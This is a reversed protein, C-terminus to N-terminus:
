HVRAAMVHEYAHVYGEIMHDVTFRRVNVLGAERIEERHALAGRITAAAGITDAPDIYVAADGGLETMPARGTAFVPCGCSHAELVPWGFGEQLSPFILGEALSYAAELDDNSVNSLQFVRDALGNRSVYDLMEPGLAEGVFLLRTLPNPLLKQLKDFIELLVLRNKYWAGGGVHLFYPTRGDFGLKDLVALAEERPKPAYPYNLSLYVVTSSEPSRGTVRLMDVESIASDCVVYQAVKLGAIILGQLKKGTSSVTNQPVEGLASKIALVDHCTAVNPTGQLYKAYMANSHDCLHVVDFNTKVRKLTFPFLLFKDVYGLWKSLGSSLKALVATYAKPQLLTVQHGRAKLEREMLSAFRLMSEQRDPVYNGILLIRM